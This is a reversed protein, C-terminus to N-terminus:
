RETVLRPPNVLPPATQLKQSQCGAPDEYPGQTRREQQAAAKQAVEIGELDTRTRATMMQAQSLGVRQMERLLQEAM